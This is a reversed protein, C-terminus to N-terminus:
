PGAQTPQNKNIEEPADLELKEPPLLEGANPNNYPRVLAAVFDPQSLKLRTAQAKIIEIVDIPLRQSWMQRNVEGKRANINDKPAPM